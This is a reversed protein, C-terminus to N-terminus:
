AIEKDTYAIHDALQLGIYATYAPPIAQGLEDRNMWDIGLAASAAARIGKGHGAVSVWGDATACMRDNINRGSGIRVIHRPHPQGLLLWNTEFKRHRYTKLGFMVGCLTIGRLPADEVNEIVYPRGTALLAARTPPILMPYVRDKLWPLHRMRSYGQCPPSAHIADYEHGHERCYELADACIFADGAYRPQPALDVGTVHFGAMQYGRACGGAGSFLDLLKLVADTGGAGAGAGDM